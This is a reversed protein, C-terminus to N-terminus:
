LGLRLSASPTTLMGSEVVYIGLAGVIMAIVVWSIIKASRPQAEEAHHFDGLNSSM